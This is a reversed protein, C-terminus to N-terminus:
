EHNHERQLISSRRFAIRSAEGSRNREGTLAVITALATSVHMLELAGVTLWSTGPYQPPTSWLLTVPTILSLLLAGYAVRSFAVDTREGLFARMAAYLLAGAAVGACTAVVIPPWTFPDFAAPVRAAAGVITRVLANFAVASAAALVLRVALPM